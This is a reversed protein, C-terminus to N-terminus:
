NGGLLWNEAEELNNYVRFAQGRNTESLFKKFTDSVENENYTAVTKINYNVFKQVVLGLIRTSLNLADESFCAAPLMLLNTSHEACASVLTLGDKETKIQGETVIVYTQNNKHIAKYKLEKVDKIIIQDKSKALPLVECRFRDIWELESQYFHNINDQTLNRIACELPNDSLPFEQKDINLMVGRIEGEYRNLLTEIDDRSLNSGFVLQLLFPKKLEPVEPFSKSLKLLEKKGNETITYKKKTPASENHLLEATVFGDDKLAMLAKYIQSNNGSWYILPSSQMIKKIDYGTLPEYSLLGLIAHEINM